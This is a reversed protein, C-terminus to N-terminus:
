VIGSIKRPLKHVLWAIGFCGILGLVWEALMMAAARYGGMSVVYDTKWPIQILRLCLMHTLYATYSEASLTRIIRSEGAGQHRECISRVAMFLAIGMMCSLPFDTVGLTNKYKEASCIWCLVNMLVWAALGAGYIMCRKKRSPLKMTHLAYGILAYTLYAGMSSMNYNTLKWKTFMKLSENVFPFGLNVVAMIVILTKLQNRSIGSVLSGIFPLFLYLILTAYVYWYQSCIGNSLFLRFFETVSLPKKQVAVVVVLWHVVSWTLFPIGIRLFRKKLYERYTMKGLPRILLAGSIMFFVPICFHTAHKLIMTVTWMRSKLAFGGLYHSLVHVAVVAFASMVRLWDLHRYREM